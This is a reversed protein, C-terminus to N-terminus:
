YIFLYTQAIFSLRSHFHLLPEGQLFSDGTCSLKGGHDYKLPPLLLSSIRKRICDIVHSKSTLSILQGLQPEIFVDCAFFTFNQVLPNWAPVFSGKESRPAAVSCWCLEVTDYNRLLLQEKAQHDQESLVAAKKRLPSPPLSGSHLPPHTRAHVCACVCVRSFSILGDKLSVLVDKLIPSTPSIEGNIVSNVSCPGSCSILAPTAASM